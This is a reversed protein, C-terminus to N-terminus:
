GASMGSVWGVTTRTVSTRRAAPAAPVGTARASAAGVAAVAAAWSPQSTPAIALESTKLASSSGSSTMVDPAWRTSVALTASSSPTVRIWRASGSKTRVYVPMAIPPTAGTPCGWGM